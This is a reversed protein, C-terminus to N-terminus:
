KPSCAETPRCLGFHILQFISSHAFCRHQVVSLGAYHGPIDVKLFLLFIELGTSVQKSYQIYRGFRLLEGQFFILFRPIALYKSVISDRRLHSQDRQFIYGLRDRAAFFSQHCLMCCRIEVQSVEQMERYNKQLYKFVM